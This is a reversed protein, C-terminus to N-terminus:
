TPIIINNNECYKKDDFMAERVEQPHKVFDEVLVKLVGPDIHPYRRAGEAMWADVQSSEELTFQYQTGDLHAKAREMVQVEGNEDLCRFGDNCQGLELKKQSEIENKIDQISKVEDGESKINEADEDGIEKKLEEM